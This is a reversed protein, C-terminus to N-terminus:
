LDGGLTIGSNLAYMRTDFFSSPFVPIFCQLNELALESWLGYNLYNLVSKNTSFSYMKVVHSKAM